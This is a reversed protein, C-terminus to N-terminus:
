KNMVKYCITVYSYFHLYMLKDPKKYNSSQSLFSSVIRGYIPVFHVLILSLYLQFLLLLPSFSFPYRQSFRKLKAFNLSCNLDPKTKKHLAMLLPFLDVVELDVESHAVVASLPVVELAEVV